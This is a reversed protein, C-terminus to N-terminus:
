RIENQLSIQLEELDEIEEVEIPLENSNDDHQYFPNNTWSKGMVVQSFCELSCFWAYKSQRNAAVINGSQVEWGHMIVNARIWGHPGGEEANSVPVASSNCGYNECLEWEVRAM